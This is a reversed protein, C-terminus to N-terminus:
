RVVVYRMSMTSMRLSGILVPTWKPSDAMSELRSHPWPLQHGIGTKKCLGDKKKQGTEKQGTEKQGTEKQGTEKQGTEKQGTEKQGTEEAKVDRVCMM